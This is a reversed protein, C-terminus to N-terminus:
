AYLGAMRQWGDIGAKKLALTIKATRMNITKHKRAEESTMYEIKGSYNGKGTLADSGNTAMADLVEKITEESEGDYDLITAVRRLADREALYVNIFISRSKIADDFKDAKMNSINIMSGTFEFSSPPKKKSEPNEMLEQIYDEIYEEREAKSMLAVNTFANTNQSLIRPDPDDSTVIKMLNETDTSQWISDSDDFVILKDRNLLITKYLGAASTRLGQYFMWKGLPGERMAGLKKNLVTKVGHTKGVGGMGAIILSRWYGDAIVGAAKAIDDFVYKPDAYIGGVGLQKESEKIEQNKETKEAVNSEVKMFAEYQSTLGLKDTKSKMSSQTDAYSKPIGSQKAFDVRRAERKKADSIENIEALEAEQAETLKFEVEEKLMKGAKLTAFLKNTVDIINTEKNFTVSTTSPEGIKRDVWYDVSNISFDSGVNKIYNFRIMKGQPSVYLAGFGKQGNSKKFSDTWLFKFKAGLKKSALKAMLEGVKKLQGVNFSEGLVIAENISDNYDTEVNTKYDKFGM